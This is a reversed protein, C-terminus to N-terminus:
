NNKTKISTLVVIGIAVIAMSITLLLASKKSMTNPVEVELENIMELDILKTTNKVQFELKESNLEYGDPSQIEILYYKGEPLGEIIMSDKTSTWKCETNENGKEDICYNIVKGLEDHIALKAGALPRKDVSNVKTIKVKTKENKIEVIKDINDNTVQIDIKEKNFYYGELVSTQVLYYTGKPLGEIEYPKEITQWKCEVNKNGQEDVCNKVINGDKTQLELTAGVLLQSSKEDLLSIKVKTLKNVIEVNTVSGDNKVEFLVKNKNLRYKDPAGIQILYYKGVPLGYVEYAAETTQWKCEQNGSCYKVINGDMNQIQLTFGPLEKEEKSDLNSIITKTKNNKITVNITSSNNKVEFLVKEKNLYYGSAAMTQVLYYKGVSLGEVQYSNTTTVWKCAKGNCKNIVNGSMDQIELTSGSIQNNQQSDLNSISVKTKNTTLTVSKKISDRLEMTKKEAVSYGDLVSSQEVTYTDYPLNTLNIKTSTTTVTKRYGKSGKINLKVGQVPENKENVISIELKANPENYNWARNQGSGIRTTKITKSDFNISVLDFAHETVTGYTRDIVNGSSDIDDDYYADSTTGISLVGDNYSSDDRHTDGNLNCLIYSTSDTFDKSITGESFNRRNNMAAEIRHIIGWQSYFNYYMNPDATGHLTVVFKYGNADLATNVFWNIQETSINPKIGWAENTAPNSADYGDLFIYRVKNVQDDVYYYLKGTVGVIKSTDMTSMIKNYTWNYPATYGVTSNSSQKITFDHNGRAVYFPLNLSNAFNAFIQVENELKTQDGFASIQDGGNIVHSANTRSAVRRILEASHGANSDVHLDTIFIFNIGNSFNSNNQAQTLKSELWVNESYYDPLVTNTFDFSLGVANINLLQIFFLLIIITMKLINKIKKMNLPIIM